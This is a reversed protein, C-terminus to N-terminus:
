DIAKSLWEKKPTINEKNRSNAVFGFKEGLGTAINTPEFRVDITWRIYDKDLINTGHPVLHNFCLLDGKKMPIPKQRYKNIDKKTLGLYGTNKFDYDQITLLKGKTEELSILSLCGTQEDIDQLPIFFTVVHAKQPNDKRQGYDLGWYQSDQHWPARTFPTKPLMPRANFIGHVSIEDTKLLSSAVNLIEENRLLDYMLPCILYKNPQRRFRPKGAEAWAKLFRKSFDQETYKKTILGEKYWNNIYDDIWPEIVLQFKQLLNGSIINKFLTYGQLKYENLNSENM